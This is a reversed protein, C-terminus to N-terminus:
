NQNLKFNLPPIMLLYPQFGFPFKLRKVLSLYIALLRDTSTIKLSAQISSRAFRAAPTEM